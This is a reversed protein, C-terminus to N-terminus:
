QKIQMIGAVDAESRLRWRQELDNYLTMVEKARHVNEALGYDPSNSVMQLARVLAEQV